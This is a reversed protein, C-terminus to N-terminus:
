DCGAVVEFICEKREVLLMPEETEHTGVARNAFAWSDLTLACKSALDNMEVM